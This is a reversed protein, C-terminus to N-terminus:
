IVLVAIMMVDNISFRFSIIFSASVIMQTVTNSSITRM